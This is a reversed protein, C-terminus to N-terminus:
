KFNGINEHTEFISGHDIHGRLSINQRMLLYTCEIIPIILERNRKVIAKFNDKAICEISKSPNKRTMLFGEMNQMTQKHYTASQHLILKSQKGFIKNYATFPETVLKKPVNSVGVSRENITFLSCSKCFYGKLSHSYILWSPFSDLHTHSPYRGSENPVFKYSKTPSWINELVHM